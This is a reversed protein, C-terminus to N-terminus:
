IAKETKYYFLLLKVKEHICKLFTESSGRQFYKIKKLKLFHLLDKIWGSFTPPRADKWKLLILCRALSYTDFAVCDDGLKSLTCPDPPTEFTAISPCSNITKNHCETITKFTLSWLEQLNVYYWFMHGHFTPSSNCHNCLPNTDPFYKDM